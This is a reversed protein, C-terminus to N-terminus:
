FHVEEYIIKLSKVYIKLVSKKGSSSDIARLPQKRWLSKVPFSCYLINWQKPTETITEWLVHKGLLRTTWLFETITCNSNFFSLLWQSLHEKVRFRSHVGGGQPKKFFTDELSLTFGHKKTVKLIIMLWMKASFKM